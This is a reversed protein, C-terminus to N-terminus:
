NLYKIGSPQRVMMKGHSENANMIESSIEARVDHLSFNTFNTFLNNFLIIPFPVLIRNCYVFSAPLGFSFQMFRIDHFNELKLERRNRGGERERERKMIVCM